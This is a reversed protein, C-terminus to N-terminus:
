ISTLEDGAVVALHNVLRLAGRLRADAQTGDAFQLRYWSGTSKLVLAEM